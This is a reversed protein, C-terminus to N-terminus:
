KTSRKDTEATASAKDGKPTDDGPLNANAGKWGQERWSPAADSDVEVSLDAITPHYLKM